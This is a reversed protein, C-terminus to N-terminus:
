TSLSICSALYKGGPILAAAYMLTRITQAAPPTNYDTLPDHWMNIISRRTSTLSYTTTRSLNWYGLMCGIGMCAGLERFSAQGGVDMNLLGGAKYVLNMLLSESKLVQYVPTDKAPLQHDHFDSYESISGMDRDMTQYLKCGEFFWQAAWLTMGMELPDHSPMKFGGLRSLAADYDKIEADLLKNTGPYFKMHTAQLINYVVFGKLPDLDQDAVVLKGNAYTSLGWFVAPSTDEDFKFFFPHVAKALSIAMSNYMPNKAALTLRNLAFMWLTLHHIAQGDRFRGNAEDSFSHLQGVRLGGGLPNADTAGPLRSKGDRTYGLTDHVAKVLREARILMTKSDPNGIPAEQTTIEGHLTLLNLVGVADTWLHRGRHGIVLDCPTWNKPDAEGLPGYVGEIAHIFAQLQTINAM